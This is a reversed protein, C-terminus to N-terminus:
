HQHAPCWYTTRGGITARALETGDKPCRGGRHREEMLDGLHSGGRRILLGLARVMGAHLRRVETPTLSGAPREPSLGTRWLLEDAILNGIGAVKSQDLLRAKLHATSGALAAALQARTISLADPGLHDLTPDILVGGLRRPDQVEMTGGDDFGIVLRDWAPNTRRPTYLLHEVSSSGDVLLTGTMGFRIGVVPGGDTDLLLLKGLRRAASFRHGVLARRLWAATTGSKLYWKDPAKVTRIGRDLATEALRRYSEIEPLEPM